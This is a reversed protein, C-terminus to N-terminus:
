RSIRGARRLCDGHNRDECVTVCILLVSSVCTQESDGAGREWMGVCVSPLVNKGVYATPNCDQIHGGGWM